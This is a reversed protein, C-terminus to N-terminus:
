QRVISTSIKAIQVNGLHPAIHKKLLWRYLDVTRPRLGPRQAIWTEAYDTLKVKGRDPDRCEGKVLSPRVRAGTMM